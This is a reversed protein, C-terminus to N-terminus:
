SGMITKGIGIEEKWSSMLNGAEGEEMNGNTGGSEKGRAEIGVFIGCVRLLDFLCIWLGPM